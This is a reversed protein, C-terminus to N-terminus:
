GAFGSSGPEDGYTETSSAEVIRWASFLADTVVADVKAIAPDYPGDQGLV